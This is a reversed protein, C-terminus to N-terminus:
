GTNPLSFSINERVLIKGIPCVAFVTVVAVHMTFTLVLCANHGNNMQSLM